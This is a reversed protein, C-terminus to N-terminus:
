KTIFLNYVAEARNKYVETKVHWVRNGQRLEYINYHTVGRDKKKQINAIDEPKTMDKVEGLESRSLYVLQSAMSNINAFM